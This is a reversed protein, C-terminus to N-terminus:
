CDLHGKALGKGEQGIEGERKSTAGEGQTLLVYTTIELLALERLTGESLFLFKPFYGLSQHPLTKVLGAGQNRVSEGVTGM